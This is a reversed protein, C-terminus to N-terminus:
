SREGKEPTILPGAPALSILREAFEARDIFQGAICVQRVSDFRLAVAAARIAEEPVAVLGGGLSEGPRYVRPAAQAEKEAAIARLAAAAKWSPNDKAPNGYENAILYADGETLDAIKRLTAPDTSITTDTM